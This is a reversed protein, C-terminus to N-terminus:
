HCGQWVCNWCRESMKQNGGWKVRNSLYDAWCNPNRTRASRKTGACLLWSHHQFCAWGVGTEDKNSIEFKSLTMTQTLFLSDFVCWTWFRIWVWMGLTDCPSPSLSPILPTNMLKIRKDVQCALLREQDSTNQQRRRNMLLPKFVSCKCTPFPTENCVWARWNWYFSFFFTELNNVYKADLARAVMWLQEHTVTVTLGQRPAESIGLYKPRDKSAAGCHSCSRPPIRLRECSVNSEVILAAWSLFYTAQIAWEKWTWMNKTIHNISTWLTIYHNSDLSGNLKGINRTESEVINGLNEKPLKNAASIYPGPWFPRLRAAPWREAILFSLVLVFTLLPFFRPLYLLGPCTLTGVENPQVKEILHAFFCPCPDCQWIGNLCNRPPWDLQLFCKLNKAWVMLAGNQSWFCIAKLGKLGSAIKMPDHCSWPKRAVDAATGKNCNPANSTKWSQVQHIQMTGHYSCTGAAWWTMSQM